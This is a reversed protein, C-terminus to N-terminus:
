TRLGEGLDTPSERRQTAVTAALDGLHNGLVHHKDTLGDLTTGVDIHSTVKEATAEKQDHLITFVAEWVVQAAVSFSGLSRVDCYPEWFQYRDVVKEFTSKKEIQLERQM